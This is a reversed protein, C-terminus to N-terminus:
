SIIKRGNLHATATAQNWIELTGLRIPERFYLGKSRHGNVAVHWHNKIDILNVVVREGFTAPWLKISYNTWSGNRMEIYIHPGTSDQDEVGAQVWRTASGNQVGGWIAAHGSVIVATDLRVVYRPKNTQIGFYRYGTNTATSIVPPIPTPTSTSSSNSGGLLLVIAIGAVAGLFRM